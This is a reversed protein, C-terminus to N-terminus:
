NKIEILRKIKGFRAELKPIFEKVSEENKYKFDLSKLLLPKTREAYEIQELTDGYAVGYHKEEKGLYDEAKKGPELVVISKCGCISAISSYFSQTDYSYCYEHENLMKVLDEQTMNDDFVPGDFSKPLDTRYKGKRLIYCKGSRSSFNYQRYLQNDFYNIQLKLGLPNLSTDNFIERYCIVMDNKGFAGKEEKFRNFYLLWRVVNKAMLPNGYLTEPYIVITNRRCFFPNYQIKIGPMTTLPMNPLINSILFKSKPFIHHWLYSIYNKILTKWIYSKFGFKDTASLQYHNIFMVRADYGLERLTKCLASLVLTGGAYLTQNYIIIKKAM